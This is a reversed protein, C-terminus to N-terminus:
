IPMRPSPGRGGTRGRISGDRPGIRTTPLALARRIRDPPFRHAPRRGLDEGTWVGVVGDAQLAESVDIDVIEGCAVESRVVRLHAVDPFSIDAIFRAQGRLLPGDELRRVSEGIVNSRPRQARGRHDDSIRYLPLPQFVSGRAARRRRHRAPRDLIGQALMLFGPTCFGCQLAHHASFAEQLPHLESDDGALGEVTAIECSEAQVAFMLCSRVPEGDVLITCAGVYERSADWTHTGTLGCDERLTDALTRRPEVEVHHQEGNVALTLPRRELSMPWAEKTRILARVREPTAPMEDIALDLPPWPM